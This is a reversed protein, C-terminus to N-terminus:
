GLIALEPPVMDNAGEGISDGVQAYLTLQSLVANRLHGLWIQTKGTYLSNFRFCLRAKGTGGMRRLVIKDEPM